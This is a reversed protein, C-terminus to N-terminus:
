SIKKWEALIEFLVKKLEEHLKDLEDVATCQFIEDNQEQTTLLLSEHAIKNRDHTFLKLKKILEQNDNIKEFKDILKGLSDKRVWAYYYKFPLFNKMKNKIMRNAVTIYMRLAEEIYQFDMLVSTVKAMYKQM